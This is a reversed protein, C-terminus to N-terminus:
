FWPDTPLDKAFPRKQYDYTLMRSLLNKADTSVKDWVPGTLDLKGAMVEDLIADETAGNFPCRGSLLLYMLVGISWIDCREDYCRKLVEPAIYSATGQM